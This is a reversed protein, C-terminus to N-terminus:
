KWRVGRKVQILITFRLKLRFSLAREAMSRRRARQSLRGKPSPDVVELLAGVEEEETVPDAVKESEGISILPSSEVERMEEDLLQTSSSSDSPQSTSQIQDKSRERLPSCPIKPYYLMRSLHVPHHAQSTQLSNSRLLPFNTLQPPDALSSTSLIVHSLAFLSLKPFKGKVKVSCSVGPFLLSSCTRCIM